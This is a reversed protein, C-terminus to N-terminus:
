YDMLTKDEKERFLCYDEDSDTFPECEESKISYHNLSDIENDEKLTVNENLNNQAIREFLDIINPREEESIDPIHKDLNM